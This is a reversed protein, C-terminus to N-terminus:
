GRCLMCAFGQDQTYNGCYTRLLEQARPDKLEEVTTAPQTSRVLQPVPLRSTVTANTVSDLQNYLLSLRVPTQGLLINWDNIVAQRYQPSASYNQLVNDSQSSNYLAKSFSVALWRLVDERTELRDFDMDLDIQHSLPNVKSFTPRKLASSLSVVVDHSEPVWLVMSVFIVYVSCFVTFPILGFKNTPYPTSRGVSKLDKVRYNLGLARKVWAVQLKFFSALQDGVVKQKEEFSRSADDFSTLVIARSLYQLIFFFLVQIPFAFAQVDM